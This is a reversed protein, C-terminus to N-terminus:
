RWLRPQPDAQPPTLKAAQFESPLMRDARVNEVEVAGFRPQGDLDVSLAMIVRVPDRM